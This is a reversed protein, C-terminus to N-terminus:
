SKGTRALEFAEGFKGDLYDRGLQIVNKFPYEQGTRAVLELYQQQENYSFGGLDRGSETLISVGYKSPDDFDTYLEYVFGLENDWQKPLQVIDGQTFTKDSM